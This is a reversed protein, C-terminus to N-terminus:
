PSAPIRAGISMMTDSMRNQTQRGLFISAVLGSVQTPPENDSPTGTGPIQIIYATSPVGASNPVHIMYYGPPTLNGNLPAKVLVSNSNKIVVQLWLLKQNPDFHHTTSMLRVLSVLPINAANTM